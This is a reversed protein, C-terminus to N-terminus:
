NTHYARLSQVCMCREPRAWLLIAQCSCKDAALVTLVPQAVHPACRCCNSCLQLLLPPSITVKYAARFVKGAAGAGLLELLEVQGNFGVGM